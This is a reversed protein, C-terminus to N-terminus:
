QVIDKWDDSVGGVYVVLRNLSKGLAEYNGILRADEANRPLTM